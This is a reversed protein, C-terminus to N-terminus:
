NGSTQQDFYEILNYVNYNVERAMKSLNPFLKYDNDYMGKFSHTEETDQYRFWYWGVCNKTELLGLTFHQYAYGRDKETKVYFGAGGHEAPPTTTAGEVSQTYFETVFFPVNPAQEAWEQM